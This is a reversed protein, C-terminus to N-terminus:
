EDRRVLRRRDQELAGGVEIELTLTHAPLFRFERLDSRRNSQLVSKIARQDGTVIGTALAEADRHTTLDNDEAESEDDAERLRSGFVYPPGEGGNQWVSASRVYPLPVMHGILFWALPLCTAFLGSHVSTLNKPAKAASTVFLGAAVTPSDSLLDRHLELGSAYDFICHNLTQNRVRALKARSIEDLQSPRPCYLLYRVFDLGVAQNLQEIRRQQDADIGAFASAETFMPIKNLRPSLRKAQLLWAMTWTEEEMIHDNFRIVLGIDSQTVHNEQDPTYEHTDVKLRATVAEGGASFEERFQHRPYVLVEEEPVADDLLDVLVSTLHTELYPRTRNLKRAVAQDIADLYRILLHIQRLSIM